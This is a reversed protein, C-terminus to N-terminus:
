RSGRPIGPSGSRQRVLRHIGNGRAPRVRKAPPDSMRDCVGGGLALRLSRAAGVRDLTMDNNMLFTWDYRVRRLGKDIAASFGLPHAIICGTSRRTNTSRSRCLRERAAGNAVVVVQRPEDIADLAKYLSALAKLLLQPSDREPIVISIGARWPPLALALTERACPARSGTPSRFRFFFRRWACASAFAPAGLLDSPTM